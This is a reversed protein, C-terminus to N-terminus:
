LRKTEVAVLLNATSEKIMDCIDLPLFTEKLVRKVLAFKTSIDTPHRSFMYFTYFGTKEWQSYLWAIVDSYADRGGGHLM